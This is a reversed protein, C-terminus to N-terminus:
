NGIDSLPEKTWSQLKGDAFTMYTGGENITEICGLSTCSKTGHYEFDQDSFNWSAEVQEKTMGVRITGSRIDQKTQEDLQPHAIVYDDRMKTYDVAPACGFMGLCLLFVLM